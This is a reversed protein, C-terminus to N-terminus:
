PHLLRTLSTLGSLASIDSVRTDYLNVHRLPAGALPSLDTIGTRSIELRQLPTDRLPSLDIVRTDNLLLHDIVSGELPHLDGVATRDICLFKLPAGRISSLDSVRKCDGLNLWALPMGRLPTLDGINALGRAELGNLRLGRLPKLDFLDRAGQSLDLNLKGDKDPWLRFQKGPWSEGLHTSYIKQLAPSPIAMASVPELLGQRALAEGLEAALEKSHGDREGALCAAFLAYTEVDELNSALYPRLVSAAAAYEQQCALIQAKLIRAKGLSGDSELAARVDQLAEDLEGQVFLMRARGLLAPANRRREQRREERAARLETLSAEAEAQAAEAKRREELTVQRVVVAVIAVLILCVVAAVPFRGRERRPVKLDLDTDEFQARVPRDAPGDSESGSPEPARTEDDPAESTM